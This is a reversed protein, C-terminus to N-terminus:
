FRNTESTKTFTPTTCTTNSYYTITPYLPYHPHCYNPNHICCWNTCCCCSMCCTPVKRRELERAKRLAEELEEILEREKSRM